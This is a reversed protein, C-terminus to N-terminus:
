FMTGTWRSSQSNKGAFGIRPLVGCKLSGRNQIMTLTGGDSPGPGFTDLPELTGFPMSYILGSNGPNIEDAIPRHLIRELHRAYMEGYNGVAAIANIQMRSFTPGLWDTTGMLAASSQFIIQDEASVLTQMVLNVFNSWAHDDGRTVIALPEKSHVESGAQFEGQYGQARVISEAIDFQEGALVNCLGNMFNPFLDSNSVTAVIHVNPNLRAIEAIHTSSDLACIVTGNCIGTNNFNEACEM